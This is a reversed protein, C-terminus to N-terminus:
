RSSIHGILAPVATELRLIRPGYSGVSFGTAVFKEIEYDIFGGEPGIALTTAKSIQSPLAENAYPHAVWCLHKRILAPVEDELFPKFRRKFNIKPMVTDRAQELGRICAAFIRKPELQECSWYSKEVRYSHTFYIDKIGLETATTIVRLLSKPRPLGIILRLNSAQPPEDKLDVELEVDEDTIKLVIAQGIKGNLLGARIEDGPKSRLVELLHKHRRGKIHVRNGKVFDAETVVLLNM